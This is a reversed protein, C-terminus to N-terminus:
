GARGPPSSPSARRTRQWCSGSRHRRPTRGHVRHRAVRGMVARAPPLPRSGARRGGPRARGGGARGDLAVPRRAPRLPRLRAPRLHCRGISQSDSLWPAAHLRVGRGTRRAPAAGSARARGVAPCVVREAPPGRRPTGPQEYDRHGALVAVGRRGRPRYPLSRDAASGLEPQLHRLQQGLVGNGVGAMGSSTSPACPRVPPKRRHRHRVRRTIAQAQRASCCLARRLVALALAVSTASRTKM